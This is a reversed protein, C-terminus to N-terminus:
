NEDSNESEEVEDDIEDNSTILSPTPIILPNYQMIVLGVWVGIYQVYIGNTNSISIIHPTPSRM